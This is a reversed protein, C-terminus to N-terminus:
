TEDRYRRLWVAGAMLVAAAVLGGWTGPDGFFTGADVIDLVNGGSVDIDMADSPDGYVSLSEVDDRFGLQIHGSLRWGLFQWFEDTRFMAYEAWGVAIPPLVAWLFPGRRAWASALLLWGAVPALWIAGILALYLLLTWVQFVPAPSWILEWASGGGIWVLVTGTLMMVIQTAAVIALTLLPIVVSATAFKSLVTSLDTVPMSKWFLISRDKRDSYLADLLYFFTVFAMAIVFPVAAGTLLAGLVGTRKHAALDTFRSVIYSWDEHRSAEVIGYFHTLLLIGGVVAPVIYVSRHEWTERRLLTIFANM